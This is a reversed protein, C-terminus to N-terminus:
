ARSRTLLGAVQSLEQVRPGTWTAGEHEAVLRQMEAGTEVLVARLGAAAAGTLENDGGDGVYLCQGPALGLRECVIRYTEPHPKLFGIEVSFATADFREALPSDAWVQLLAPGCNTLLGIRYGQQRLGDLARLAAPDASLWRRNARTWRESARRLAGPEPEIGAQRAYFTLTEEAGGTRGTETPERSERRVRAFVEADVGLDEAMMRRNELVDDASTVILTGFLDFVVGRLGSAM